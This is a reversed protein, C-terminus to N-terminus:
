KNAIDLGRDWTVQEVVGHGQGRTNSCRLLGYTNCEVGRTYGGTVPDQPSHLCRDTEANADVAHETTKAGSVQREV